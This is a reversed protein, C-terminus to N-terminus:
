PVGTEEASVWGDVRCTSDGQEGGAKAPTLVRLGPTVAQTIM